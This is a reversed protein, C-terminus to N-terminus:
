FRAFYRQFLPKLTIKDLFYRNKTSKESVPLDYEVKGKQEFIKIRLRAGYCVTKQFHDKQPFPSLVFIGQFYLLILVKEVM